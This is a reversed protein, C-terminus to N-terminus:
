LYNPLQLALKLTIKEINMNNGKSEYAKDGEPKYETLKKFFCGGEVDRRSM